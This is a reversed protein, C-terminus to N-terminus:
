DNLIIQNKIRADIVKIQTFNNNRLFDFVLELSMSVNKKPLKILIDNSLEIDWRRSTFYYLNKIDKFDFKSNDIINKLILFEKIKPKGFIFPLNKEHLDNNSLKGNSGIIYNTGNQNIRALFETKKINIYLSSPYVKFVDYKEVLSNSSIVNHLKKENLFFINGLKLDSLKEFLFNNNQDGLGIVQIDSINSFNIKNLAINNISGVVLLLLFYLFIKKGKQVQM